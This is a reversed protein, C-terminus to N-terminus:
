LLVATQCGLEFEAALALEVQICKLTVIYLVSEFGFGSNECIYPM